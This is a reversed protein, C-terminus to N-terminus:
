PVLILFLGLLEVIIATSNTLMFTLIGALLEM